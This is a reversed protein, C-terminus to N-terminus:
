GDINEWDFGVQAVRRQIEQSYALAPMHKPVSAIISTEPQREKKKLEEWNRLVEASDKVSVDGFVHPHRSVLKNNISSLVGALEFEGAEQAIRAHFVIQMLLDGLEIRLEDMNGGDIAELVEYGEQLLSDRISAHTQEKDWPCGDPARLKEMIDVLTEFKTM